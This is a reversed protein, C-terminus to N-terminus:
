LGRIIKNFKIVEKVMEPTTHQIDSLTSFGHFTMQTNPYKFRLEVAFPIVDHYYIGLKTSEDAVWLDVIMGDWKTNDHKVYDFFDAKVISVKPLHEVNSAMLDIVAQSIEVCTISKVEDNKSLAHLVLGLGLGAVLVNGHSQEGYIEMARWHPPDDVMWCEWKGNRFEQLNTVVLPRVAEFLIYGDIGYMHYSGRTYRRHRIRYGGVENEPYDTAPTHWVSLRLTKDNIHM